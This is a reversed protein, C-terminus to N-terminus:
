SLDPIGHHTTRAHPKAHPAFGVAMSRSSAFRHTSGHVLDKKRQTTPFLRYGRLCRHMGNTATHLRRRCLVRVAFFSSFLKGPCLCYDPRSSSGIKSGIKSATPSLGSRSEASEASDELCSSGGRNNNGGQPPPEFSAVCKRQIEWYLEVTKTTCARISVWM